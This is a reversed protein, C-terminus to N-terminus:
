AAVPVPVETRGVRLALVAAVVGTLGAIIFAYFYDGQVTRMAGAFFAASAAGLQHGAVIWGFVIPADRDGFSENALRLTPPVTAIWDLGYFVSFVGLSYFSFDSFPLFVLSLGRLGYYVFLLKRPDYRDTLWGSLTTGILDFAGMAALLGAARVEALGRDSCLAIFHTGILGNTTFGCIFFTAFLLWFARTKTARSLAGFALELPNQVVREPPAPTTESVGLPVLGVDAPREPLLWVALPILAACAASVTLVVPKWGATQALSALIPMFVLTGTAASATLLGMMLGRRAVFWRNVVTAGLVIAVCGSGLGSLIGWTVVLHVPSTMFSSAATSAAMLALASILVRRIGFRQMLAAAFPGALGYLFIGIAASLSIVDRSWGFAHELPVILVGPTARLGAAVLLALFVVASAVYAYRQGLRSALALMM